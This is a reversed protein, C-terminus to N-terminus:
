VTHTNTHARQPSSPPLKVWGVGFRVGLYSVKILTLCSKKFMKEGTKSQINSDCEKLM